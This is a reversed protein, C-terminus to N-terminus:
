VLTCSKKGTCSTSQAADNPTRFKIRKHPFKAPLSRYQTSYRTMAYSKLYSKMNNPLPLQNIGYVTTHTVIARCCLEKLQLVKNSRWLREMGNRQLAMRSLEVFSEVINFNNCLSSVEFFGMKHKVAYEEAVDASVQRKFELHLRNGILLKPVGPAHEEVEKLWRNLGDFSWKNTIDYVLL